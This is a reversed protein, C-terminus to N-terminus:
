CNIWFILIMKFMNFFDLRFLQNEKLQMFNIRQFHIIGIKQM